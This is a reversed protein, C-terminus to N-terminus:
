IVYSHYRLHKSHDYEERMATVRALEIPLLKRWMVPQNNNVKGEKRLLAVRAGILGFASVVTCLHVASSCHDVVLVLMVLIAANVPSHM